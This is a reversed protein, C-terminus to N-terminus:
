AKRCKIADVYAQALSTLGKFDKNQILKKNYLNSGVGIGYFGNEIFSRANESTVGGVALLRADSLPATVAKVYGESVGDAPFLKIYDAGCNLAAVIETPTFAAPISVMGLKRTLKIIDPDCSPSIIFEAGENFALIVEDKSTVTGAGIHMRGKFSESLMSIMECIEERSIRGSRDFTIELLRIGGDYLAEAADVLSDKEPSRIISIIKNEKISDIIANRMQRAKKIKYIEQLGRIVAADSIERPLSYVSETELLLAYAAELTKNGGVYINNGDAYNKIDKVDQGLVAGYLFSTLSDIKKGNKQMVRVHFIAANIGKDLAYEMGRKVDIESLTFNYSVAGALISNNVLLDLLEGSATTLFSKIEGNEGIRIIKNHTGPLIMVCPLKLDAQSIIGAVETEEGRMIDAIGSGDTTKVGPVFWIPLETLEPIEKVCVSEALVYKDAPASIHPVDCLAFESGSMGSTIICEVDNESVNSEILIEEFLRRLKAVLVNKGEALGLKAGFPMKKACLIKDKDCLWVRTNSTGMDM